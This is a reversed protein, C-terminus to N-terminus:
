GGSSRPACSRRSREDRLDDRDAGRRVSSCNFRGQAKSLMVGDAPTQAVRPRGACPANRPRPDARRRRPAYRRIQRAQALGFARGSRCNVRTLVHVKRPAPARTSRRRMEIDRDVRTRLHPARREAVPSRRTAPVDPAHRDPLPAHRWRAGDPRPAPAARRRPWTRAGPRHGVRRTAPQDGSSSREVPRLHGVPPIV